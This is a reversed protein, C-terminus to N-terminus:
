TGGWQVRVRGEEEAVAQAVCRSKEEGGETPRTNTHLSLLTYIKHQPRVSFLPFPPNLCVKAGYTIPVSLSSCLLDGQFLPLPPSLGTHACHVLYM